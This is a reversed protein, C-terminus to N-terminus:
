LAAASEHTQAAELAATTKTTRRVAQDVDVYQAAGTQM